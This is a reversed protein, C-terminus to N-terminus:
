NSAINNQDTLKILDSLIEVSEKLEIMNLDQNMKEDNISLTTIHDNNSEMAMNKEIIEEAHDQLEKINNFTSKSHATRWQNTIKLIQNDDKEKEALREKLNLSFKTLKQSKNHTEHIATKYIYDPNNHLRQNHNSNLNKIINAMQDSTKPKIAEIYDNPLASDLAREGINESNYASTLPIDPTVGDLQTSQGNPRYFKQITLKLVSNNLAGGGLQRLTQVTGKGHSQQGIIIGRGHDQIAAAVIESASASFETQIVGLPGDWANKKVNQQLKKVQSNQDKVAVIFSNKKYPIFLHSINVAEHLAGGGNNRLDLLLGDINEKILQSILNKVDQSSSTCNEPTRYKPNQPCGQFDYYFSPLTIVGIKNIKGNAPIEIIKASAAQDELKIEERTIEYERLKKTSNKLIKLQIITGKDGRILNVVDDLRCGRISTWESYPTLKIAKIIDGPEIGSRKSPGGSIPRVIKIENNDSQLVAGIGTLKKSMSINFDESARPPMYATHPDSTQIAINTILTIIDQRNQQIINGINKKYILILNKNIDEKNEKSVTKNVIQLALENDWRKEIELQNQAWGIDEADLNIFGEFTLGSDQQILKEIMYKYKEIAKVRYQHIFNIVVELNYQNIQNDLQHKEKKFQAIEQEIFLTKYPDFNKLLANWMNESFNDNLTFGEYHYRKLQNISAVLVHAAYYNVNSGPKILKEVNINHDIDSSCRLQPSATSISFFLTLLTLSLTKIMIKKITKM